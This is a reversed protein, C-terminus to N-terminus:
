AANLSSPVYCSNQPAVVLESRRPFLCRIGFLGMDVFAGNEVEKKTWANQQWEDVLYLCQHKM